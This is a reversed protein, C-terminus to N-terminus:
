EDEMKEKRKENMDLNVIGSRDREDFSLDM